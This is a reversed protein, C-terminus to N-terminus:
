GAPRPLGRWRQVWHVRIRQGKPVEVERLEEVEQEVMDTVEREVEDLREHIPAQLGVGLLCPVGVRVSTPFRQQTPFPEQFEYRLMRPADGPEVRGPRHAQILLEIRGTPIPLEDPSKM